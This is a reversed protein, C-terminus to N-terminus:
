HAPNGQVADRAAILAVAESVTVGLDLALSRANLPGYSFLVEPPLLSPDPAYGDLATTLGTVLAAATAPTFSVEGGKALRAVILFRSAKYSVSELALSRAAQSPYPKLIVM